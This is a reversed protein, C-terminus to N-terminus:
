ARVEELWRAFEPWPRVNLVADRELRARRAHAIGFRARDLEDVSHADTSIVFSVGRRAGARLVDLPPELRSLSANIELATGTEVCADLVRDVDFRVGPRAGIRRGTLHGIATVSPQRIARVLRETQAEVDRDFHSHISAVLWDFGALFADDHDLEGDAGINLEAGHLLHIDGRQQELARVRDRQELMGELSVGNMTLNRAHDTIALYELGRGVAAEVLQELSMRGDGSAETHDHLDGRLDDVEAVDPLADEFEGEDERIEPPIWPLDLAAYLEQESRGHAPEGAAAALGYENLTLSRQQARQRLRINHAKSGTFYVLAAGFSDPPVVRVDIQLQERTVVSLKTSGHGLVRDVEVVDSVAGLVDLGDPGGVLVDLDGITERFRRLSGAYAVESVGDVQSLREVLREAVPLADAIPVRRQKSGLELVDIAERLRAVRKEGFGPLEAARGDELAAVLGELSTVGLEDELRQVLKPGLGPVRTLEVKSAPHLARLQELREVRGTDVFERIRAAISTGIGRIKALDAASLDAVDTELGEVARQATAYARVRFANPSGEDLETLRALEGLLRAVDGNRDAM